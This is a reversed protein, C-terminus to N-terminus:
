FLYGISSAAIYECLTYDLEWVRGGDRKLADEFSLGHENLLEKGTELEERLTPCPYDFVHDLELATDCHPCLVASGPM